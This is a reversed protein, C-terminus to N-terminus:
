YDQRKIAGVAGLAFGFAVLSIVLLRIWPVPGALLATHDRNWRMTGFEGMTWMLNVPQSRLPPLYRLLGHLVLLTQAATPAAYDGDLLVSLLFAGTLIVTGGVFWLLTFHLSQGLPYSAGVLTSLTPILLSPVLALVAIEGLGTGIQSLALRVRSAPLTLTFAAARERRFGGLGLFITLIAFLGKATGSYVLHYIHESYNANRWSRPLHQSQALLQDQFLVAVFCFGAVVTLSVWFRGRSERWAKYWLM